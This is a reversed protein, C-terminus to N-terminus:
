SCRSRRDRRVEEVVWAITGQASGVEILGIAARLRRSHWLLTVVAAFAVGGRLPVKKVFM